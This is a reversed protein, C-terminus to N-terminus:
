STQTYKSGNIQNYTYSYSGGGVITANGGFLTNLMTGQSTNDPEQAPLLAPDPASTSSVDYQIWGDVSGNHSYCAGSNPDAFARFSGNAYITVSYNGPDTEPTVSFRFSLNDWAWQPGNDSTLTCPGSISTTDAHHHDHTVATLTGPAAGALGPLGVSGGLAALVGIAVKTRSKLNNEEKTTEDRGACRCVYNVLTWGLPGNRDRVLM